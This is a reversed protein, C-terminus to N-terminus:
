KFDKIKSTDKGKWHEAEKVKTKKPITDILNLGVRGEKILVEEQKKFGSLELAPVSAFELVFNKSPNSVFLRNNGYVVEPVTMTGTQDNLKDLETTTVMPYKSFHMSWAPDVCEFQKFELKSQNRIEASPEM